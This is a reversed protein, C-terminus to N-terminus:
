ARSRFDFRTRERRVGHEAGEREREVAVEESGVTRESRKGEKRAENERRLREVKEVRM